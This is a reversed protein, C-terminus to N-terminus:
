DVNQDNVRYDYLEAEDIFQSPQKSSSVILKTRARTMAVYMLRREEEIGSKKDPFAEANVAMVWVSDWELGKSSHATILVVESGDSDKKSKRSRLVDVRKDFDGEISNLVNGFAKIINEAYGSLAHELMWTQIGAIVLSSVGRTLIERWEHLRKSFINFLEKENDGIDIQKLYKTNLGTINEGFSQHLQRLSAESMGAWALVNDVGSKKGGGCVIDVITAFIAAEPKDLISGGGQRVYPVGYSLMFEEADDLVNNTRGIVACSQTKVLEGFIQAIQWSERKRDNFPRYEVSGGKGKNATLHKPLRGLNKQVLTSASSLIEEKCRYNVNLIIRKADFDNAFNEMGVYGMAQRWAYISQDDDGVITTIVGLRTHQSIWEYQLQDIDQCEDVLMVDTNFPKISKNRFGKVTESILDQFDIKYNRVLVEQYALFLKKQDDKMPKDLAVLSKAQEILTAAMDVDVDHLMAIDLARQIYSQRDGEGAIDLKLDSNGQGKSIINKGYIQKLPPSLLMFCLGHFTGVLLNDSYKPGATKIIRHRIELASDKTFTVAVVKKGSTLLAAAKSALMKTKGSGPGALVLCNGNEIAAEKQSPNLDDLM